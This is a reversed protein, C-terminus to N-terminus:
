SPTEYAEGRDIDRVRLQVKRLDLASLRQELVSLGENLQQQVDDSDTTFDVSLTGRYLWLAVSFEGLNPVDLHMDSRWGDDPEGQEHSEGMAGEERSPLNVVLAMFIGAWVDGEWRLTPTVLMELQQRVLSQLSEHVVERQRASNLELLERGAALETRLTDAGRQTASQTQPTNSASSTSSSLASLNASIESSNAPLLSSGPIFVGHASSGQAQLALGLPSHPPLMFPLAVPLLLPPGSSSVPNNIVPIPQGALTAPLPRVGPQMQPERLLQQRSMDGQFWRKLHAEYFLGSNRVSGELRVALTQASASEEPQMLPALARLTSLPAPFRMLVDAITRAAPSFHTQTSGQQGAPLEGPKGQRPLDLSPPLRNLESLRPDSRADLRSDSHLAKPGAGPDVPRVPENLMRPAPEGRKGLVQHMLTDVLLNIGSM